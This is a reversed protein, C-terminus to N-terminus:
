PKPPPAHGEKLQKQLENWQDELARFQKEFDGDPAPPRIPQEPGFAKVYLALDRAQEDSVRGRFAPMLTGKGDLISAAFQPLSNRGQWQRSTFDPLTPMGARLERGRGDASHCTLCYQRYLGTAARTRAALADTDLDKEKERPRAIPPEVTPGRDPMPVPVTPEIQVVQKGERFQRVYLVLREADAPSLKNKMAVMFPGRGELISNKLDLNTRKDNWMPDTFDPVAPM